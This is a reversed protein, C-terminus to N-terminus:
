SICCLFVFVFFFSTSSFLKIVHHLSDIRNYAIFM